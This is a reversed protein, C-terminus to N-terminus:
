TLVLLPVWMDSVFVTVQKLRLVFGAINSVLWIIEGQPCTQKERKRKGLTVLVFNWWIVIKFCKACVTEYYVVSKRWLDEPPDFRGSPQSPSSHPQLQCWVITTLMELSRQHPLCQKGRYSVAQSQPSKNKYGGNNKMMFIWIWMKFGFSLSFFPWFCCAARWSGGARVSRYFIM